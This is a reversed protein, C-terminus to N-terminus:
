ITYPVAQIREEPFDKATSRTAETHLQAYAFKSTGDTGGFLYLKSEETQVEAIDLHFYGIPYATFKKKEPIDKEKPLNSFGHRQLCRHLFSHCLRPITEQLSYPCDDLPLPM